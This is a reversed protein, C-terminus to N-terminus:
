RRWAWLGQDPDVLLELAVERSRAHSRGDFFLAPSKGDTRALMLCATHSTVTADDGAFGAGAARAYGALFDRGLRELEPALQEWRIASLLVFSLFFGLDFVPHGYHAVEFDLKWRGSPGILMNKMAYDGDVLCRRV